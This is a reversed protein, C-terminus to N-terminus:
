SQKQDRGVVIQRELQEAKSALLNHMIEKYGCRKYSVPHTLSSLSQIGTRYSPLSVCLCVLGSESILRIKSIASTAWLAPPFQLTSPFNESAEDSCSVGNVSCTTIQDM